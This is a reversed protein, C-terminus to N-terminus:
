KIRLGTVPDINRPDCYVGFINKSWGTQPDFIVRHGLHRLEDIEVERISLPGCEPIYCLQLPMGKM